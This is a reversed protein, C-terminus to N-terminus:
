QYQHAVPTKHEIWDDLVSIVKRVNRELPSTRLLNKLYTAKEVSMAHQVPKDWQLRDALPKLLTGLIGNSIANDSCQEVDEMLEDLWKEGLFAFTTLSSKLEQENVHRLGKNQDIWNVLHQAGKRMGMYTPLKNLTNLADLIEQESSLMDSPLLENQAINARELAASQADGALEMTEQDRQAEVDYRPRKPASLSPDVGSSDYSGSGDAFTPRNSGRLLASSFNSSEETGAQHGAGAGTTIAAAGSYGVASFM